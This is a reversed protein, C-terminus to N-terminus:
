PGGAAAYLADVDIRCSLWEITATEGPGAIQDMSLMLTSALVRASGVGLHDDRMLVQPTEM